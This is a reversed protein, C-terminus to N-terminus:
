RATQHRRNVAPAALPASTKELLAPLLPAHASPNKSTHFFAEQIGGREARHCSFTTFDNGTVGDSGPLLPRHPHPPLIRKEKEKKEFIVLLFFFFFSCM